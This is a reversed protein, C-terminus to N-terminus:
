KPGKLRSKAWADDTLMLLAESAARGRMRPLIIEEAGMAKWLRRTATNDTGTRAVAMQCHAFIYDCAANLVTRSAWRRDTAAASVEILGYEPSYNHFVLGAVMRGDRDLVAMTQCNGYDPRCGALRAVFRVVADGGGWVPTV